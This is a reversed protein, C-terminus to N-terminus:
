DNGFFSVEDWEDKYFIDPRVPIRLGEARKPDGRVFLIYEDLSKIRLMSVLSKADSYSRMLGLWEEWSVWEPAYM